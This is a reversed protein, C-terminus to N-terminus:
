SRAPTLFPLTSVDMSIDDCETSPTSAFSEDAPSLLAHIKASLDPSAPRPRLNPQSKAHLRKARNALDKNSQSMDEKSRTRGQSTELAPRSNTLKNDSYPVSSQAYLQAMEQAGIGPAAVPTSLKRPIQPIYSNQNGYTQEDFSYISSPPRSMPPAPLPKKLLDLPPPRRTRTTM